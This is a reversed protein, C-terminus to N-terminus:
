GQLKQGVKDVLFGVTENKNKGMSMPMGLYRRPMSVEKVELTACVKTRDEESTNPSFTVSSKNFNIAQGSISEYRRLIGKM